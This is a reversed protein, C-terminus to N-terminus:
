RPALRLYKPDLQNINIFATSSGGYSLDDGRAGSYGLSVAMNWPVQRQVDISYQQVYPSQRNQDIFEIQSGVGTLLRPQEREAAASGNPFPNDLNATPTLPNSQDTFTERTASNVGIARGRDRIRWPSWFLGYGGRFVTKDNASWAFGVRPSIKKKSPDGSARSATRAPM